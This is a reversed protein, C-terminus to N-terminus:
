VGKLSLGIKGNEVRVVKARVQDGIKVVDEVKEVFGSKLESIHIMGDMEFGFEVIAGFDLIKVVTGEVLEGIKYEHAIAEVNALAADAATKNPGYVFVKGSQDIDIGTAGTRAIIANITKGGPGIIMGIREPSINIAYVVPARASLEPRPGALTKAMAALIELRAKKAQALVAAAIEPTM